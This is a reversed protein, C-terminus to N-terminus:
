QPQDPMGLRGLWADLDEFNDAFRQLQMLAEGIAAQDEPTRQSLTRSLNAEHAQEDAETVEGEPDFDPCQLLSELFIDWADSMRPHPVEGRAICWQRIGKIAEDRFGLLLQELQEEGGPHSKGGGQRSAKRRNESAECQKQPKRRGKPM